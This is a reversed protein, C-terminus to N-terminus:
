LQNKNNYIYYYITITLIKIEEIVSNKLNFILIEGKRPPIELIIENM